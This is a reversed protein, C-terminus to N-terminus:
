VKKWETLSLLEAKIQQLRELRRAHEPEEATNKRRQFYM